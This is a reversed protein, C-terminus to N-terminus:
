RQSLSVGHLSTPHHHTRIPTAQPQALVLPAGLGLLPPSPVPSSPTFRLEQDDIHDIRAPLQFLTKGGQDIAVELPRLCQESQELGIQLGKFNVLGIVDQKYGITGVPYPISDRLQHCRETQIRLSDMFQNIEVMRFLM